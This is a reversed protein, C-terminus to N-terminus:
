VHCQRRTRRRYSRASGETLSRIWEDDDFQKTTPDKEKKLFILQTNLLFRCEEPLDGTAWKIAVPVRAEEAWSRRLLCHRGPTGESRWHFWSCENAVVQRPAAFRHRNQETGAGEDREAGLKCRGCGWASRVADVSEVTTPHTGTGLSRLILATTWNRRCDASGQAAGGVLGKM